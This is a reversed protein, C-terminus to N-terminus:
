SSVGLERLVSGATGLLSNRANDTTSWRPDQRLMNQYQWLPMLQFGGEPTSAQLGKLITPDQPKIGNPDMELLNAMEQKYPDAVDAVTLGSNIQQQLHPFRSIAQQKFYETLSEPSLDGTIMRQVMNQITDKGLNVYYKGALDQLANVDTGAQGTVANQPNYQFHGAMASRVEADDMGNRLILRSMASLDNPSLNIGLETSLAQLDKQKQAIERNFEGPNDYQLVDFKRQSDSRKKWWPTSKFAEIARAKGADTSLDIGQSVIEDFVHKLNKDSQILAKPFGLGNLEGQIEQPTLSM